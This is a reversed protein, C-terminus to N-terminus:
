RKYHTCLLNDKEDRRRFREPIKPPNGERGDVPPKQQKGDKHRVSFVTSDGLNTKTLALLRM